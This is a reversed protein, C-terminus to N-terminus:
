MKNLTEVVLEIAKKMANDEADFSYELEKTNHFKKLLMTNFSYMGRKEETEKNMLSFQASKGDESLEAFTCEGFNKANNITMSTRLVEKRKGHVSNNSTFDFTFIAKIIDEMEKIVQEKPVVFRPRGNVTEFKYGKSIYRQKEDDSLDVNSIDVYVIDNLIIHFDLHYIGSSTKNKKIFNSPRKTRFIEEAKELSIKNGKSLEEPTMYLVKTKSENDKTKIAITDNVTGNCVGCQEDMSVMLPHFPVMDSFHIPSKLSAKHYKEQKFSIETPNWFGFYRTFPNELDSYTYIEGQKDKEANDEEKKNCDASKIFVRKPYENGNIELFREKVCHKVNDASAYGYYKKFFQDYREKSGKNGVNFVLGDVNFVRRISLVFKEM